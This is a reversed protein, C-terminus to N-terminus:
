VGTNPNRSGPRVRVRIGDALEHFDGIAVRDGVSLGSLVIQGEAGRAGLKVVRRELTEGRIQFVVGTTGNGATQVAEAPLLVGKPPSVAAAADGSTTPKSLLAVRVGMEPLIRSDKSHLGIRVKVTGKSRDATPVIAIVYAPITWDPYADLKLTAPQHHRVRDIFNESVDVEVELSDMDVLTGIGTRTFGGGASVPSVMEGPQAAKATIIGSFPARVVTDDEASQAVALSGRAMALGGKAVAVAAQRADYDAKSSQLSQVSILGSAAQDRNSSYIPAIDAAAAQAAALNAEAQQVGARAQELAALTNTDDLKAMVANAEIHEGEEIFLKALKGTIKASVTAATRAVIYGSADLIPADDSGGSDYRGPPVARAVAVQVEIGHARGFALWLLVAVVLAVGGFILLRGWNRNRPESLDRDIRLERLLDAKDAM